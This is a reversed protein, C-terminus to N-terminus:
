REALAEAQVTQTSSKDPALRIGLWFSRHKEPRVRNPTPIISSALPRAAKAARGATQGASPGQGGRGNPRM